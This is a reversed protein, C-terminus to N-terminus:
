SQDPVASCNVSQVRADNLGANPGNVDLCHRNAMSVIQGRDRRWAGAAMARRVDVDGDLECLVTALGESM